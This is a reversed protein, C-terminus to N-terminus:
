NCDSFDRRTSEDRAGLQRQKTRKKTRKGFKTNKTIKSNWNFGTLLFACIKGFSDKKEMFRELQGM